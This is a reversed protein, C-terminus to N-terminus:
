TNFTTNIGTFRHCNFANIFQVYNELSFRETLPTIKILSFDENLVPFGRLDQIAPPATGFKFLAPVAFANLHIARDRSPEFSGNNIGMSARQGAVRDPRLSRNFIPLSNAM